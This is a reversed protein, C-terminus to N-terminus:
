ANELSQSNIISWPHKMTPFLSKAEPFRTNKRTKQPIKESHKEPNKLWNNLDCKYKELNEPTYKLIKHM